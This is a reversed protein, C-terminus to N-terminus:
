CTIYSIRKSIFIVNLILMLNNKGFTRCVPIIIPFLGLIRLVDSYYQHM